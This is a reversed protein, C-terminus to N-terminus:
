IQYCYVFIYLVVSSDHRQFNAAFRFRLSADVSVATSLISAPPPRPTALLLRSASPTSLCCSWLVVVDKITMM